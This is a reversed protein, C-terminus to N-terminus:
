TTATTACRCPDHPVPICWNPIAPDKGLTSPMLRNGDECTARSLRNKQPSKDTDVAPWPPSPAARRALRNFGEIAENQKRDIPQTADRCQIHGAMHVGFRVM